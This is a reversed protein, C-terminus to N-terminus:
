KYASSNNYDLLLAANNEESKLWNHIQILKNKLPLNNRDNMREAFEIAAQAMSKQPHILTKGVGEDIGTLEMAQLVTATFERMHIIIQLIDPDKEVLIRRGLAETDIELEDFTAFVNHIGPHVKKWIEIVERAGLESPSPFPFSRFETLRSIRVVSSGEQDDTIPSQQPCEDNRLPSNNSNMGFFSHSLVLSRM